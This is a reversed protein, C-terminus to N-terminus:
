ALRRDLRRGFRGRLRGGRGVRGRCGSGVGSGVTSGVGSGVGSAVGSAVGSGLTLGSGVGSGVGRRGDGDRREDDREDGAGGRGLLGIGEGSGACGVEVGDGREPHVGDLGGVGSGVAKARIRMDGRHLQVAATGGLRSWIVRSVAVLPRQRLDAPVQGVPRDRRGARRDDGDEVRADVDAMRVEVRVDDAAGREDGTRRPVGVGVAVTGGHGPDDGRLGAVAAADRADGIGAHGDHRHGNEASPSPRSLSM